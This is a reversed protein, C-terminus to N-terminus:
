EDEEDPEENLYFSIFEEDTLDMFKNSGLTYNKNVEVNHAQIIRLNEVFVELRYSDELAGYIRGHDL